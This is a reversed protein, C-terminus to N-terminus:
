IQAKRHSVDDDIQVAMILQQYHLSSFLVPINRTTRLLAEQNMFLLEKQFAPTSTQSSQWQPKIVELLGSGLVHGQSYSNM